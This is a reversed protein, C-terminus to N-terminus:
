KQKELEDYDVLKNNATEIVVALEDRKVSKMQATEANQKLQCLLPQKQELISKAKEIDRKAKSINEAKGLM